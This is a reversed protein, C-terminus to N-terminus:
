QMINGAMASAGKLQNTPPQQPMGLSQQPPLGGMGQDPSDLLKPDLKNLRAWKEKIEPNTQLGPWLQVATMLSTEFQAKAILSTDQEAPIVSIFFNEKVKRLEKPNLEIIELPKEMPKKKPKGKFDYISEEKGTMGEYEFGEQEAMLGASGKPEETMRIVRNGRGKGSIDKELSVERYKDKVLGKVTDLKKDIPKTWNELINYFRLKDINEHLSIFGHLILGLQQKAQQM